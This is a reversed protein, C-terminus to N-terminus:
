LRGPQHGARGRDPAHAAAPRHVGGGRGRRRHADVLHHHRRRGAPAHLRAPHHHRRSGVRAARPRPLARAPPRPRGRGRDRQLGAHRRARRDHLGGCGGADRRGRALGPAPRGARLPRLGRRLAPQGAGDDARPGPRDDLAGRAGPGAGGHRHEAHLHRGGGLRAPPDGRRRLRAARLQAGDGGGRVRAPRRRAAPVRHGPPGHGVGRGAGRRRGRCPPGSRRDAALLRGRVDRRERRRRRPLRRRHRGPSRPRGAGRRRRVRPQAAGAPLRVVARAGGAEHDRHGRQRLVGLVGAPRRQAAGDLADADLVLRGLPVGDHRRGPAPQRRADDPARRVPRGAVRRRLGLAADATGLALAGVRGPRRHPRHRAPLLHDDDAHLPRQRHHRRRDGVRVPPAGRRTPLRSAPA